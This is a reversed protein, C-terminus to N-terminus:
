AAVEDPSTTSWPDYTGFNWLYGEPDRCSYDRGGYDQDQIDVVIEAGAAIADAYHQDVGDVIIYPSQCVVAGAQGPPKQLQGFADDRAPDVMIMGNGFTLEAHAVTGDDELVVLHKEFGFARCLWEVAAAVDNYRLTPIITAGPPKLRSVM